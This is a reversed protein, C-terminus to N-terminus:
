ECPDFKLAILALVHAPNAPHLTLNFPPGHGLEWVDPDTAKLVGLLTPPGGEVVHLLTPPLLTPPCDNVDTVTISLTATSSLPPTGNDVAVVRAVGEAGGASERDLQTRLRVGGDTDVTLADWGGEVRYDM